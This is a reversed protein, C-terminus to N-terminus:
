YKGVKIDKDMNEIKLAQRIKQAQRAYPTIIGIDECAIPPKSEKMLLKVYDVVVLVEQPNFWSPSDGERSNVGDVAHFILPFDKTPLHEWKALSHTTFHDACAELQNRYFMENPLKIIDPHSRYNKVLMTVLSSPYSRAEENWAYAPSTEVLREMFSQGMGFKKCFDSTIIPGLQKPDGAMILQGGKLSDLMTAAVAVVEPEIAHCAEDVAIVDFHGRKVGTGLCFLRAGMAVTTVVIQYPKLTSVLASCEIGEHCYPRVAGPVQSIPRTYALIRIMESPPFFQALKEVLLDTADNSPAVLLIKLRKQKKSADSKHLNALQFVSEVLTTTKGTGPPGFILYSLPRLEGRVIQKVAEKQEPNLLGTTWRYDPRSFRQSRLQLNVVEKTHNVSPMLMRPGMVKTAACRVGHHSTRFPTRSFTFRVLDIRDINTDFKEHFSPHFTILVDLLHVKVVRGRYLIGKWTCEVVDGRLVSPRGEALGEVHLKFFRGSRELTAKEMDFLKIDELAQLENVWLLTQWFSSYTACFEKRPTTMSPSVIANEAEKHEIMSRVDVPVKFQSLGKYGVKGGKEKPPDLVKRVVEDKKKIKPKKIFPTSPKLIDYMRADGATLVLKRLISFREGSSAHFMFAVDLRYAATAKPKFSLQVSLKKSEGPGGITQVDDLTGEFYKTHPGSLKLDQLQAASSPNQTTEELTVTFYIDVNEGLNYVPGPPDTVAESVVVGGKNALQDKHKQRIRDRATQREPFSAFKKDPGAFSCIVIGDNYKKTRLLKQARLAAMVRAEVQRLRSTEELNKSSAFLVFLEHVADREIGRLGCEQLSYECDPIKAYEKLHLWEFFNKALAKSENWKIKSQRAQEAEHDNALMVSSIEPDDDGVDDEEEEVGRPDEYLLAPM